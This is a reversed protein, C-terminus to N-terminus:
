MSPDLQGLWAVAAIAAAGLVQEAAITRRLTALALDPDHAVRPTLWFRNAAALVLLGSVFALKLALVQPYTAALRCRGMLFVFALSGLGTVLVLTVAIAGLRGFRRLTVHATSGERRVASWLAPLAGLWAGIALLHLAMTALRAGGALGEGDAAHGVFALAGLTIGALGLWLRPRSARWALLALAAAVVATSALARGFGTTVVLEAAVDLPPWGPAGVVERALLQLYALASVSLAAAFLGVTINRPRESTPDILVRYVASGFVLIALGYTAFRVAVLWPDVAGSV